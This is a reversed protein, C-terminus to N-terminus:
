YRLESKLPSLDNSLHVHMISEAGKFLSNVLSPKASFDKFHTVDFEDKMVDWLNSTGDALGLKVAEQGLWFDGSFLTKPDGKLRNGRGIKVDDIFNNHVANLVSYIKQKDAASSPLFPDMRDKFDGVSYVRRTIGLKQIADTFGFGNMIVGISGTLTDANVYIKDAASSILYAASALTDEGVVVVKKNYQKKLQIIRDHIISAQVPSGGPSNIELIVGKTKKDRFAHLLLPIVKHASFGTGPMIAGNLRILSIYPKNNSEDDIKSGPIFLFYAYLLLVFAWILTRIFRWRRDSRRDALLSKTITDEIDQAM